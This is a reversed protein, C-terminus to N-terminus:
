FVGGAHRAQRAGAGAVGASGAPGGHRGHLQQEAAQCLRRAGATERRYGRRRQSEEQEGEKEDQVGRKAVVAAMWCRHAADSANGDFNTFGGSSRQLVWGITAAMALLKSNEATACETSARVVRAAAQDGAETENAVEPVDEGNDYANAVETQKRKGTGVGKREDTTPFSFFAVVSTKSPLRSWTKPRSTTWTRPPTREREASCLAEVRLLNYCPKMTFEPAYGCSKLVSTHVNTDCAARLAFKLM